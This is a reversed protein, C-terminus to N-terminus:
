LYNWLSSLPPNLGIAKTNVPFHGFTRLPWQSMWIRVQQKGQPGLKETKRM